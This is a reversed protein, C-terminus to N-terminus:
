HDKSPLGKQPSLQYPEYDRTESSDDEIFNENQREPAEIQIKFSLIM